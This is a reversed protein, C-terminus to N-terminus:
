SSCWRTFARNLYKFLLCSGCAQTLAFVVRNYWQPIKEQSIILKVM